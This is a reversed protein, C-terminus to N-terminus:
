HKPNEIRSAIISGLAKLQEMTLFFQLKGNKVNNKDVITSLEVYFEGKRFSLIYPTDANPGYYAAEGIGTVEGKVLGLKAAEDKKYLSARYLKVKLIQKGEHNSFYLHGTSSSQKSESLRVDKFGTVQTIDGTTLYQEYKGAQQAFASTFGVLVLLLAISISITLARGM